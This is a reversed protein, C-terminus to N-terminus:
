KKKNRNRLILYIGAGAVGTGILALTSPEPVSTPKPKHGPTPGPKPGPNPSPKPGKAYALNTEHNIVTQPFDGMILCIVLLGFIIFFILKIKM